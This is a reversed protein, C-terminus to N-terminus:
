VFCFAHLTQSDIVSAALFGFDDQKLEFNQRHSDKNDAQRAPVQTYTVGILFWQQRLVNLFIIVAVFLCIFSHCFLLIM